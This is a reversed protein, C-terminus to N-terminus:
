AKSKSKNFYKVSFLLISGLVILLSGWYKMWRGPDRNVTFISTTPRGFKMNEFSTQYVTYGAETLPENMRITTKKPEVPDVVTVNSSYESPDHTGHYHSITFRELRLGFPLQYREPLYGVDIERGRDHIKTQM